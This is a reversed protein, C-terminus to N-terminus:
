SHQTKKKLIVINKNGQRKYELGDMAKRVLHIGLGGITREALPKTIDAEPAELPNFAQGDDEVEIRVEGPQVNLNVGIVHERDDTYGYSIINTVIEELALNLDRVVTPTLGHRRWLEALTQNLRELESLKNSIEIEVSETIKKTTGFYHLALATIDDSQPVTGTFRRVDSVLDSVM